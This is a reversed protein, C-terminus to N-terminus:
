TGRWWDKSTRPDMFTGKDRICVKIENSRARGLPQGAALAVLNRRGSRDMEEYANQLTPEICIDEIHITYGDIVNDERTYKLTLRETTAYLLLVQMGEGISYGANPVYIVEGPETKMGMLTVEYQSYLGARTGDPGGGWNWDYVKYVNPFEPIRKDEFLGRLQPAAADTAGGMSILGKEANTPEYGRMSLNLDAHKPAPRDSPNGNISLTKYSVGPIPACPHIEPQSPPQPTPEPQTPIQPEPQTEPQPEPPSIPPPQLPPPTVPPVPSTGSLPPIVLVQDVWIHGADDLNNAAQILRYKHVDGYFMRAIKGLNDGRQVTYTQQSGSAAGGGYTTLHAAMLQELSKGERQARQLAAQFTADDLNLNIYRIPM